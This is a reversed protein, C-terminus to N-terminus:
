ELVVLMKVAYEDPGTVKLFYVGGPVQHGASDRGNWVFTRTGTM